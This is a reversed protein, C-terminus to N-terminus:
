LLCPHLHAASMRNEFSLEPSSMPFASTVMHDVDCLLTAPHIAPRVTSRLVRQWSPSLPVDRDDTEQVQLM